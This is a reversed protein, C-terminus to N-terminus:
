MNEAESPSLYVPPHVSEVVPGLELDFNVISLILEMGKEVYASSQGIAIGHIWRRLTTVKDHEMDFSVTGEEGPPGHISPQRSRRKLRMPSLPGTKDLESM